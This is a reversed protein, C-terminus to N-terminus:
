PRLKARAAITVLTTKTHEVLKLEHLKKFVSEVVSKYGSSFRQLAILSLPQKLLKEQQWVKQIAVNRCSELCRLLCVVSVMHVEQLSAQM